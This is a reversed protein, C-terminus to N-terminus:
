VQSTTTHDHSKVVIVADSHNDNNHTLTYHKHSLTHNISIAVGLCRCWAYDGTVDVGTRYLMTPVSRTTRRHQIHNRLRTPLSPRVYLLHVWAIGLCLVYLLLNHLLTIEFCYM